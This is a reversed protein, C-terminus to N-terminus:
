RPNAQGDNLHRGPSPVNKFFVVLALVSLVTCELLGFSGLAIQLLAAGMGLALLFVVFM